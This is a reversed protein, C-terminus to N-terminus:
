IHAVINAQTHDWVSISPFVTVIDCLNVLMTSYLVIDSVYIYYILTSTDKYISM